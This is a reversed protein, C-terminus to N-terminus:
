ANSHLLSPPPRLFLAPPYKLRVLPQLPEDTAAVPTHGPDERLVARVLLMGILLPVTQDIKGSVAADVQIKAVDSARTCLKAVPVKNHMPSTKYLSLKYATGWLFVVLGLSIAFILLPSSQRESLASPLNCRKPVPSPLDQFGEIFCLVNQSLLENELWECVLVIAKLLGDSNGVADEVHVGRLKQYGAQM